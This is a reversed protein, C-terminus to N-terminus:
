RPSETLAIMRDLLDSASIQLALVTPALAAWAADRAAAGVAAIPRRTIPEDTV